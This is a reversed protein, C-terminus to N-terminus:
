FFQSFSLKVLDLDMDMGLEFLKIAGALMAGVITLFFKDHEAVRLLILNIPKKVLFTASRIFLLLLIFGVHFLTPTVPSLILTAFLVQGFGTDGNKISTLFGTDIMEFLYKFMEYPDYSSFLWVPIVFFAISLLPMLAMVIAALVLDAILFILDLKLSHCIVAKKILYRTIVISLFDFAPNLILLIALIGLVAEPYDPIIYEFVWWHLVSYGVGPHLLIVLILITILMFISYKVSKKASKWCILTKGFIANLFSNIYDIGKFVLNKYSIDEITVWWFELKERIWDKQAKGLLFDIIAFVIIISASMFKLIEVSM